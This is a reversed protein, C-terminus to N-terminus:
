TAYNHTYECSAKEKAQKELHREMAAGLDQGMEYKKGHYTRKGDKWDGRFTTGDVAIEGKGEAVRSQANLSLEPPLLVDARLLM